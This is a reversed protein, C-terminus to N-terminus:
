HFIEGLDLHMWLLHLLSHSLCFSVTLIPLCYYSLLGHRWGLGVTNPWPPTPPLMPNAPTLSHPPSPPPLYTVSTSQEYERINSEGCNGPRPTRTPVLGIAKSGLGLTQVRATSLGREPLVSTPNPPRPSPQTYPNETQRM